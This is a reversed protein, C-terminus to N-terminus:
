KTAALRFVADIDEATMGASEGLSCLRADAREFITAHIWIDPIIGGATAVAAKVAALKGVEDLAEVLQVARVQSPVATERAETWAAIEETTAARDGPRCDGAYLAGTREDRWM